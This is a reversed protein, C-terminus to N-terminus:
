GEVTASISAAIARAMLSNSSTLGASEDGLKLGLSGGARDRSGRVRPVRGSWGASSWRCSSRSLYDVYKVIEVQNDAGEDLGGFPCHCFSPKRKTAPGSPTRAVSNIAVARCPRTAKSLLPSVTRGTTVSRLFYASQSGGSVPQRLARAGVRNELDQDVPLQAGEGGRAPARPFREFSDHVLVPQHM